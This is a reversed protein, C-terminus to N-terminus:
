SFMGIRCAMPQLLEVFEVVDGEDGGAYVDLTQKLMYDDAADLFSVDEVIVLVPSGEEVPERRHQELGLGM